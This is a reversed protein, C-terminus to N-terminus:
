RPHPPSQISCPTNSRWTHASPTFTNHAAPCHQAFSTCSVLRSTELESPHNKCGQQFLHLLHTSHQEGTLSASVRQVRLLCGLATFLSRDAHQIENSSTRVGIQNKGKQKACAKLMWTLLKVTLSYAEQQLARLLTPFVKKNWQQEAESM